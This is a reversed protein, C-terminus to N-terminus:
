PASPVPCNTKQSLQEFTQQGDARSGDSFVWTPYGTIGADICIKTQGQGNATSCEIYPLKASDEFLKKQAQCHPCWYAGYFKAGADAICQAFTDYISPVPAVKPTTSNNRVFILGVALVVVLAIYAYTAKM